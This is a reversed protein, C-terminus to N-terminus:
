FKPLGVTKLIHNAKDVKAKFLPQDDYKGNLMPDIKFGKPLKPKSAKSKKTKMNIFNCRGAFWFFSM